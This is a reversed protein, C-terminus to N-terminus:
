AAVEEEVWRVNTCGEHCAVKIDELDAAVDAWYENEERHSRCFAQLHETVERIFGLTQRTADTKTADLTVADASNSIRVSLEAISM